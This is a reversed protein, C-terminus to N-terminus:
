GRPSARGGAPHRHGCRDHDARVDTRARPRRADLPRARRVPLHRVPIRSFWFLGVAVALLGGILTPKFGLRTVLQSAAGAALIISIALPLYAIGTKIASYGIVFQLYYSIFLFMSFLSMGTMVGAINAGRLTRLRFIRFPM